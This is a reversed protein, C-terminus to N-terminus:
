YKKYAEALRTKNRILLILIIAIGFIVPIIFKGYYLTGNKPKIPPTFDSLLTILDSFITRSREIDQRRTILQNIDDHLLQTKYDQLFIMQGGEKPMLRRSEEFYKVKQLSDLQEVEYDIRALLADAQKLRLENQNKFFQNKSIYNVIGDKIRSLAQPISTTVRILFRDSMRVNITDLPNHKGRFDVFDPINDSGLDIFWFAHIDKINKVEEPSVSLSSALETYNKEICFTHLKNIYEIMDANPITNSKLIIDSSYFKEASLKVLYSISVGIFLSIGLWVSNRILFFFAHLLGNGTAKFGKVISRGIRAFLDILDIEDGGARNESEISKSM